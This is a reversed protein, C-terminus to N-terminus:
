QGVGCLIGRLNRVAEKLLRFYDFRSLVSNSNLWEDGGGFFFSGVWRSVGFASGTESNKTRSDSKCENFGRGRRCVLDCGFYYRLISLAIDQRMLPIARLSRPRPGPGPGTRNKAGLAAAYKSSNTSPFTSPLFSGSILVQVYM